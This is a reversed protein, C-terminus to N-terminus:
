SSLSGSSGRWRSMLGIDAVYVSRGATLTWGSSGVCGGSSGGRDLWM